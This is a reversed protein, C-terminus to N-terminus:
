LSESVDARVEYRYPVRKGGSVEIFGAKRLRAISRQITPVSCGLKEALQTQNCPGNLAAVAQLVSKDTLRMDWRPMM